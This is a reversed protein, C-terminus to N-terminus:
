RTKFVHEDPVQRRVAIARNEKAWSGQRPERVPERSANNLSSRLEEGIRRNPVFFWSPDVKLFPVIRRSGFEILDRTFGYRASVTLLSRAADLYRQQRFLHAEIFKFYLDFTIPIRRHFRKAASDIGETCAVAICEAITHPSYRTMEVIKRNTIGFYEFDHAFSAFMSTSKNLLEVMPLCTSATSSAAVTGGSGCGVFLTCYRTLHATERLSLSGAYCSRADQMQVPLHTSLIVTSNPLIKYLCSAVEQALEPTVFSQGSHSTCEFLIRHDFRDLAQDKVYREVHDIEDATLRIVNEIPVTIPAGYSRLISPRVTGDYNQFNNPAIQSLFVQDFDRRMYRRVAEREFIEWMLANQSRDQIPIEWVENIDPNNLLLGACQSSIAWTIHANPYDNRLQRALVTAYL